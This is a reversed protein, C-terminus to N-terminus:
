AIEINTEFSEDRSRSPCCIQISVCRRMPFESYPISGRWRNHAEASLFYADADDNLRGLMAKLDQEQFGLCEVMKKLGLYHSEAGAGLLVHDIAHITPSTATRSHAAIGAFVAEISDISLHELVSISYICDFRDDGFGSLAQPFLGQLFTIHPFRAKIQQFQAPGRDRGDYPDVVV